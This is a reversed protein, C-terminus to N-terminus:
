SRILGKIFENIAGYIVILFAIAGILALPLGDIQLQQGLWSYPIAVVLAALAMSSYLLGKGPRSKWFHRQTRLILMVALETLTSEVFWASRFLTEDAHFLNILIWFTALDFFSSIL